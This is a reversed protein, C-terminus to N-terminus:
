IWPPAPVVGEGAARPVVDQDSTFSIVDEGSAGAIVHEDAADAGIAENAGGAVIDERGTVKGKRQTECLDAVGAGCHAADRVTVLSSISAM